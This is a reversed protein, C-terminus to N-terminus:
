WHDRRVSYLLKLRNSEWKYYYEGGVAKGRQQFRWGRVVLLKSDIRYDLSPLQQFPMTTVGLVEAFCYANGTRADVIAFGKCDSGCGWIVLTYHGAFNPGEKAGERIMTRFMRTRPTTLKVSAPEGRFKENVPYDEFKPPAQEQMPASALLLFFFYILLKDVKLVKRDAGLAETSRARPTQSEHLTQQRAGTSGNILRRPTRESDEVIM